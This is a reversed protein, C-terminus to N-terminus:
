TRLFPCTSASLPLAAREAPVTDIIRYYDWPKKQEGPAKVQVVYYDRMVRGDERIHGQEVVADHIPMKRMAAAVPETADTGAAEVARLYHLVGSYAGSQIFTPANGARKMFREGFARSADTRDWYFSTTIILGQATPLGIAHVDTINLLLAALRQGQKTLGFENAQKVANM